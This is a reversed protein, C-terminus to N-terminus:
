PLCNMDIILSTFKTMYGTLNPDDHKVYQQKTWFWFMNGGIFRNLSKLNGSIFSLKFTIDPGMDRVQSKRNEQCLQVITLMYFILQEIYQMACSNQFLISDFNFSVQCYTRSVQYGGCITLWFMNKRCWIEEHVDEIHRCCIKLTHFFHSLWFGQLNTLFYKEAGFKKMCMKLIDAVYRWANFLDLWASLELLLQNWLTRVILRWNSPATMSFHSLFFFRYTQWFYKKQMLSRWACRWYTQLIVAFPKFSGTFAILPTSKMFYASDVM